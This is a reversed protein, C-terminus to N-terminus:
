FYQKIMIMSLLLIKSKFYLYDNNRFTLSQHLDVRKKFFYFKCNLFANIKMNFCWVFTQIKEFLSPFVNIQCIDLLM